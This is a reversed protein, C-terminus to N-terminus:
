CIFVIYNITNKVFSNNEEMRKEHNIPMEAPLILKRKGNFIVFGM